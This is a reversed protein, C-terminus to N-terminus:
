SDTGSVVIFEEDDQPPEFLQNLKQFAPADIWLSEPPPAKSRELTRRRAISVPCALYYFKAVAGTKAVRQRAIDRSQRTWFGMDIIADEGRALSETAAAWIENEIRVFIEAYDAESPRPGYSRHVWEDHTFRVASTDKALQRAFSTKGSGLRGCLLHIIPM